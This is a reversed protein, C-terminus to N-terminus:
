DVMNKTMKSCKSGLDVLLQYLTTFKYPLRNLIM